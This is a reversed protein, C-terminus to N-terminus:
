KVGLREKRERDWKAHLEKRSKKNDPVPKKTMLKAEIKGIERAAQILNMQAIRNSLAHDKGLAYLIETFHEGQAAEVMIATVGHDQALAVVDFDEYKKRANGYQAQISTVQRVADEKRRDADMKSLRADLKADTVADLYLEYTDFDEPKIDKTKIIRDEVVSSATASPQKADAVGRWYAAEREAEAMRKTLKDIKKQFGGKKEPEEASQDDVPEEETTTTVVEEKAVEGSKDDDDTVTEDVVKDIKIEESDGM